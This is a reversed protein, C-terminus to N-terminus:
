PGAQPPGGGPLAGGLAGLIDAASVGAANPQGGATGTMDAPNSAQTGGAGPAAPAAGATPVSAVRGTMAQLTGAAGQALAPLNAELFARELINAMASQASRIVGAEELMELTDDYGLHLATFLRTALGAVLNKEAQMDPKLRYEVHTYDGIDDATIEELGSIGWVSVAQGRAKIWELVISLARSMARNTADAILNTAVRSNATLAAVVAAVNVGPASGTAAIASLTGREAMGSLIQWFQLQEPPIVNKILQHVNVGPGARTAYEGFPVDFDIGLPQGDVTEEIIPSNLFKILNDLMLTLNLNRAAWVGGKLMGYLFPVRKDKEDTFFENASALMSVRPVFPLEHKTLVIARSEQEQVWVCHATGDVADFLTLKTAEDVGIFATAKEGYTAVIDAFELQQKVVHHLLGKRRSYRPYCSKPHPADFIFPCAAQPDDAVVPDILITGEDFLTFQKVTLAAINRQSVDRMRYVLAKLFRELKDANARAKQRKEIEADDLGESQASPTPVSISPENTTYMRVVADVTDKPHTDYLTHVKTRQSQGLEEDPDLLYMKEYKDFEGDRGSLDAVLRTARTKFTEFDPAKSASAAATTTETKPKPTSDKAKPM